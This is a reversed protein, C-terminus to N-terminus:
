TDAGLYVAVVEPNDRIAAPPGEAIVRGRHMVTIRESIGFVVDTDHESFLVTLKQDRTLQQVMAVTRETEFPSMGATPEDLLLLSPRTALALAVELARQDGHSLTRAEAGRMDALGLRELLELAEERVAASAHFFTAFDLSRRLRVLIATQVSELVTLRLFVNTIQFAQALGLRAIAYPRRGSIPTGQFRVEGASPRLVGTLLRFLTTKGAGNPGIVAHISGSRVTFSVGDVARFGGFLRTLGNVALIETM